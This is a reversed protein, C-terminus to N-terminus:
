EGGQTQGSGCVCGGYSARDEALCICKRSDEVGLAKGLAQKMQEAPAKLMLWVEDADYNHYRLCGDVLGSLEHVFCEGQEGDLLRVVRLIDTENDYTPYSNKGKGNLQYPYRVGGQRLEEFVYGEIKALAEILKMEKMDKEYSLPTTM